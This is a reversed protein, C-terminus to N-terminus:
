TPLAGKYVKKIQINSICRVGATAILITMSWVWLTTFFMSMIYLEFYKPTHYDGPTLERLNGKVSVLTSWCKIM